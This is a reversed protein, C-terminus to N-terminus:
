LSGVQGLRYLLLWNVALMLALMVALIVYKPLGRWKQRREQTILVEKVAIISLLGLVARTTLAFTLYSLLFITELFLIILFMLWRWPLDKPWTSTYIILGTLGASLSLLIVPNINLSLLYLTSASTLYLQSYTIWAYERYQWYQYWASIVLIIALLKLVGSVELNAYFLSLLVSLTLGVSIM